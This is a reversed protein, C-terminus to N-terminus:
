KVLAMRGTHVDSGSQVRYFYVGAAVTHGSGNRGNWTVEHVAAPLDEALLTKVLRGSLDFIRVTTHGDRPLTFRIKTSPNFPNPFNQDVQFALPVDGNEGQVPNSSCTADLAGILGCGGSHDPACPSTPDINYNGTGINCFLPDQSINGNTGTPDTVGGYQDADNMYVDNCSFVPTGNVVHIGNANSALGMNFASINNAVTPSSESIYIGGGGTNQATNFAVTNGTLDGTTVNQFSIGAGFFYSTNDTFLSHMVSANTAGDILVGGGIHATNNQCTLSDLLVTAASIYLGGGNSFTAAATIGNDSVSSRVMTIDTGDLYIGGGESNVFNNYIEMDQM